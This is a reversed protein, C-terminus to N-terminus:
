PKVTLPLYSKYNVGWRAIRDANAHGGADSFTGGAYVNPGEAAIAYVFSNLGNGLTNPTTHDWYWVAIYDADPNTAVDTFWGGLYVTPGEVAIAFVTNNLANGL